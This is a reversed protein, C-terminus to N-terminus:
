FDDGTLTFYTFLGVIIVAVCIGGVIWWSM